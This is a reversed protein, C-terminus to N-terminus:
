ELFPADRESPAGHLPGSPLAGKSPVGFSVNLSQFPLTEMHAGSKPFM